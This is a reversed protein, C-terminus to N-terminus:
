ANVPTKAAAKMEQLLTSLDGKILEQKLKGEQDFAEWIQHIGVSAEVNIMGLFETVQKLQEIAFNAGTGGYGVFGVPKNKWQHYLHDLANKLAPSYGHNYEPTVIIFGDSESIIKSWAKTSEHHFEEAMMPPVPEDLFPLDVKKLDILEFNMEEQKKSVEELVWNAVARGASQTRVSGLIIKINM